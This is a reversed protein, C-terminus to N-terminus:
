RSIEKLISRVTSEIINELERKTLTIKDNDKLLNYDAVTNKSDNEKNINLSNDINKNDINSYNVLKDGVKCGAFNETNMGWETRLKLLKKVNKESITNVNGLGHAIANIKAFLEM